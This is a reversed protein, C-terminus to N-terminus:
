AIALCLLYKKQKNGITQTVRWSGKGKSGNEWNWHPRNYLTAKCIIYVIM